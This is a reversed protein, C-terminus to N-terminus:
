CEELGVSLLAASGEALEAEGKEALEEGGFSWGGHEDQEFGGDSEAQELDLVALEVVLLEVLLKVSRLGGVVQSHSTTLRPAAPLPLRSPPQSSLDSSCM